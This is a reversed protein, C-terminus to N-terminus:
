YGPHSGPCRNPIQLPCVSLCVSLCALVQDFDTPVSDSDVLGRIVSPAGRLFLLGSNRPADSSLVVVGSRLTQSSFDLVKVIDLKVTTAASRMDAQRPLTISERDQVVSRSTLVWLRKASQQPAECFCCGQTALPM